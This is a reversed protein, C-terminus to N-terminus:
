GQGQSFPSFGKGPPPLTWTCVAFITTEVVVNDKAVLMWQHEDDPPSLETVTGPILAEVTVKIM